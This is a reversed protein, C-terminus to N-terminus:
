GARRGQDPLRWGTRDDRTPTMVVRCASCRATGALVPAVAAVGPWDASKQAEREFWTRSNAGDGAVRRGVDPARSAGPERWPCTVADQPLFFSFAPVGQPPESVM